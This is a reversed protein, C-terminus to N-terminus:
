DGYLKGIILRHSDFPKIEIVKYGVDRYSIKDNVKALDSDTSIVINADQGLGYTEQVAKLDHIVNGKFNGKFIPDGQVKGGEDDLHSPIEYTSLVKDYFVKKIKQKASNPIYM